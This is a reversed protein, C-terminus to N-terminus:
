VRAFDGRGAAHPLDDRLPWIRLLVPLLHTKAYIFAFEIAGSPPPLRRRLLAPDLDLLATIFGERDRLVAREILGVQFPVCADALMWAERRLGDVFSTLNGDHVARVIQRMVFAQWPGAPDAHTFILSETMICQVFASRGPGDDILRGLEADLAISRDLLLAALSPHELHCAFMFAENVAALDDAKKEL